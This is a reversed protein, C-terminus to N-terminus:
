SYTSSATRMLRALGSVFVEGEGHEKRRMAHRLRGVSLFGELPHCRWM